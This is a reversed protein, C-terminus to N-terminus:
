VCPSVRLGDRSPGAIAVPKRNYDRCRWRESIRPQSRWECERLSARRHLPNPSGRGRNRASPSTRGCRFRLTSRWDRRNQSASADLSTAGGSTLERRSRKPDTGLEGATQYRPERNKELAKTIIADIQPPLDPNPRIPAAPTRNLIAEFIVASTEGRFPLAGTAMEYLVVGSSFLDTRSDLDKGRAQEPSLDAVTGLAMGPSTLQESPVVTAATPAAGATIAPSSGPQAAVKALGFDLIKVHGRKTVFINAPKIDRHFIGRAHAAGLAGAGQIGLDLLEGIDLLRGRIVHKPTRGELLETVIFPMGDAEEVAHITCINPHNLTSAALAERPFREHAAKDKALEEPLFKLAVHRHLKLDEAQYVVGVGGGGLKAVNRYHSIEQRLILEAEPM